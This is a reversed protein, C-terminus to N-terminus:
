FAVQALFPKGGFLIFKGANRRIVVMKWDM